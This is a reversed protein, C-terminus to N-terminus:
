GDMIISGTFLIVKVSSFTPLFSKQKADLGSTRLRRMMMCKQSNARAEGRGGNDNEFIDYFDKM